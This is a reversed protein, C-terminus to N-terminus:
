SRKKSQKLVYESRCLPRLKVQKIFKFFWETFIETTMWGNESVAYQTNPPSKNGYWTSQLNKGKFIILPDLLEGAASPAALVSVNDKREGFTLKMGEKGTPAIIKASRPDRPFGTEDCNWIHAANNIEPYKKYIGELQDYLDAIISPNASNSRRALSLM